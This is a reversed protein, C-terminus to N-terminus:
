SKHRSRLRELIAEAPLTRGAQAQSWLTSIAADLAAREADDLEDGEDDIVLDLVTGDPLETPQDVVLRGGRVTARVPM